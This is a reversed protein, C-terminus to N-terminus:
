KEEGFINSNSAIAVGTFAFYMGLMNGINWFRRGNEKEWDNLQEAIVSDIPWNTEEVYVVNLFKEELLNKEHEYDSLSIYPILFVGDSTLYDSVNLIVKRILGLGDEDTSCPVGDYWNSFGAVVSSISAIDSIILKFKRGSWPELLPGVRLDFEGSSNLKKAKSIAEHSIDSGSFSWKPFIKKLNRSINFDGCGLELCEGAEDFSLIIKSAAKEIIESTLNRKFVAM